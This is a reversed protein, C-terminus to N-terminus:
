PSYLGHFEGPWFVPTTAKQKELPGEWCLSWVWTEWTCASEKGATSLPLGLISFGLFVLTEEIALPNLGLIIEAWKWPLGNLLVTIWTQAGVLLVSSASTSCSQSSRCSRRSSVGLLPTRKMIPSQFTFTPFWSVGQTVLLNPRPTCFSAPSFSISNQWSFASTM